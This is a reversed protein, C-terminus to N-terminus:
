NWRWFKNAFYGWTTSYILATAIQIIRGVMTLEKSILWMGFAFPLILALGTVLSVAMAKFTTVVNNIDFLKTKM